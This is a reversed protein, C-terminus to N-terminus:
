ILKGKFRLFLNHHRNSVKSSKPPPPVLFLTVIIQVSLTHQYKSRIDPTKKRGVIPMVYNIFVNKPVLHRSTKGLNPMMYIKSIQIAHRPNEKDGRHAHCLLHICKKTFQTGPTKGLNPMVNEIQLQYSPVQHLDLNPMMYVMELLFYIPVPYSYLIHRECHDGVVQLLWTKQFTGAM